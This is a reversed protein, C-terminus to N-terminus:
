SEPQRPAGDPVFIWCVEGTVPERGLADVEARFRDLLQEKSGPWPRFGPDDATLDGPVAGRDILDGLLTVMMATLQELSAEPGLIRGATSVLADLGTWDDEALGILSELREAYENM